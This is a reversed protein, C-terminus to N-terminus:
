EDRDARQIRDLPEFRQAREWNELLEARHRLCWDKVIAAPRNPLRGGTVQLV